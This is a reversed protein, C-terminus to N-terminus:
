SSCDRATWRHHRARSDDVIQALVADDPRSFPLRAAYRALARRRLAASMADDPVSANLQVLGKVRQQESLGRRLRVDELDLLAARHRAGPRDDPVFVVNGGKLDRHHVDAEHLAVLLDVLARARSAADPADPGEHAAAADAAHGHGLDEMVFLSSVQSAGEFRELWALPRPTAVGLAELAHAAQWARKAPTGAVRESLTRLVGRSRIEKVVVNGSHGPVRTVCRQADDDLLDGEGGERAAHHAAVVKALEDRPMRSQGRWDDIAATATDGEIRLCRKARSRSRRRCWAANARAVAARADIPDGPPPAHAFASELVRVRDGESVLERLSADLIGLDHARDDFSHLPAARQLDLLWPVGDEAVLVNGFHLDRHALGADHLQSVRRGLARLLRRRPRAETRLADRLSVGELYELVVLTERGLAGRALPRPALGPAERALTTLATWERDAQSGAVLAKAQERLWKGVTPARFQKLLVPPGGSVAVRAIRRHPGDALVDSPDPRALWCDVARTVDSDGDHWRAKM